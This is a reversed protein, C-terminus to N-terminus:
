VHEFICLSEAQNSILLLRNVRYYMQALYQLSTISSRCSGGASAEALLGLVNPFGSSSADIALFRRQYPSQLNFSVIAPSQVRGTLLDDFAPNVFINTTM